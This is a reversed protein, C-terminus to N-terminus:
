VLYLRANVMWDDHLFEVSLHLILVKFLFDPIMAKGITKGHSKWPNGMTKGCNGHNKEWGVVGDTWIRCRCRPASAWHPWTRRPRCRRPTASFQSGHPLPPNWLWPYGLSHHTKWPFDSFGLRFHILVPPLGIVLRFGGLSKLLSPFIRSNSLSVPFQNTTQFM